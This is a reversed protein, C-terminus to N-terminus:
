ERLAWLRLTRGITTDSELKIERSQSAARFEKARSERVSAM